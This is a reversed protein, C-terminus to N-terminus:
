RPRYSPMTNQPFASGYPLNMGAQMGQMVGPGMNGQHGQHDGAMGDPTGKIGVASRLQLLLQMLQADNEAAERFPLQATILSKPLYAKLAEKARPNDVLRLYCRCKWNSLYINYFYRLRKVATNPRFGLSSHRVALYAEPATAVPHWEPWGGYQNARCGSRFVERSNCLHLQAWARRYSNEPRHFYCCNTVIRHGDGNHAPLSSHDRNLAFLKDGVAFM